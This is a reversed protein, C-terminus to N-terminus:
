QEQEKKWDLWQCQGALPQGERTIFVGAACILQEGYFLLPTTGRQWPPVGLEQWLKKISRRHERGVIHVDGKADFRVSVPEDARPPRVAEGDSAWRLTGLGQPLVLPQQNDRWDLCVGDLSARYKVWWLAGQYRRVESDGLRLRPTADDRACAIEDWIRALAARSPMPANLYAFWRRILANRRVDSMAALPAIHLSSQTGLLGALAEELLEDLLQEQEGCLAASRAAARSFHPWRAALQPLVRLRLFNRDFSDDANSDDDIWSLHHQQAWAELAQRPTDLLPRLLVSDAFALRQPMGALGAPGSGRKLALLLTECQDDQHQATVLAEGPQLAQAFAQYRAERAQAELGQGSDLLTVTCVQLEVNWADCLAQCRSAWDDAFRSIGHHVHIARLCLDPQQERLMVLRHLLVTSDLGGSFAVLLRREPATWEALPLFTM